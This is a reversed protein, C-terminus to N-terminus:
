SLAPTESQLHLSFQPGALCRQTGTSTISVDTLRAGCCIQRLQIWNWAIPRWGSVLQTWAVWCNPPRITLISHSLLCIYSHITRMFTLMSRWTRQCKKWPRGHIFCVASPRTGLGSPCRLYVRAEYFRYRSTQCYPVSWQSLEAALVVGWWAHLLENWIQLVRLDGAGHSSWLQLFQGAGNGPRIDYLAVLGPRARDTTCRLM